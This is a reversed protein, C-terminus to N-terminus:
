EAAPRTIPTFTRAPQAADYRSRRPTARAAARYENEQIFPPAMDLQEVPFLVAKHKVILAQLFVSKARGFRTSM